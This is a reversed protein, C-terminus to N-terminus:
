NIKKYNIFSYLIGVNLWFATANWTTFFSGTSKIPWIDIFFTIVVAILLFYNEKSLNKYKLLHLISKKLLVLFFTLMLVFGFIGAESLLELYFNHPHNGCAFLQPKEGRVLNDKELIEACKLRFSKFGFGTIPQTKWIEIATRFVKNHGTNRLLYIEKPVTDDSASDNVIKEELIKENKKNEIIKLINVNKFFSFYPNKVYDDKQALLFFISIFIIISLSMLLRINKIFLVILVCGFLFLITPMRNGAVLIAVLHIVTIVIFSLNKERKINQYLYFISFFSFNKLYTGAIYEDGFPGSNHEWKSEFGFIDFETIYQLLIDLSVFTTCIFCSLFFKKLDLIKNYILTDIVFILLLFRVLLFSKIAPNGNGEFWLKIFENHDKATSIVAGKDFRELQFDFINGPFNFQFISLLFFYLFFIIIFWYSKNFRLNLNRQKIIFLSLLIFIVSHVSVILNGLIFTVPLLYFLLQVFLNTNIKQNKYTKLKFM